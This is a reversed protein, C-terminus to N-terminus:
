KVVLLFKETAQQIEEYFKSWMEELSCKSMIAEWEVKGLWKRM